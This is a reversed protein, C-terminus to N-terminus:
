MLELGEDFSMPEFGLEKRAKEIVFGTKLPRRGPQKFTAADVKILKSTDLTFKQATKVAIDYPTLLDKGSIHYIGTARKEIILAIGKVLDGV